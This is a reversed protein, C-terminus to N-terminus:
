IAFCFLLVSSIGSVLRRAIEQILSWIFMDTQRDKMLLLFMLVTGLQYM